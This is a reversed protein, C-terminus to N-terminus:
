SQDENTEETLPFDRQASAITAKGKELVPWLTEVRVLVTERYKVALTKTRLIRRLVRGRLIPWDVGRLTAMFRKKGTSPHRWKYIGDADMSVIGTAINSPPM